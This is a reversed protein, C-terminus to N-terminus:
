TCARTKKRCILLVVATTVASYGESLQLPKLTFDFSAIDHFRELYACAALCQIMEDVEINRKPPKQLILLDVLKCYRLDHLTLLGMTRRFTM